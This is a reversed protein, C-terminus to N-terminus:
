LSILLFHLPECTNRSTYKTVMLSPDPKSSVCLSNQPGTNVPSTVPGLSYAPKIFSTLIPIFIDEHHIMCLGQINGENTKIM